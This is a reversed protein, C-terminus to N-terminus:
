DPPPALSQYIHLMFATGFLPLLLNLVPISAVVAIVVGGIFLKPRRQKRLKSADRPTLRRFAVLEYYERGLLIGNLVWYAVGPLFFFFPLFLINFVIILVAFKLGTLISEMISADRPPALEPYYRKEVARCITEVFLSAFLGLFAPLLVITIVFAALGGAFRIGTDVWTGVLPLSGFFTTENVLWIVITWLAVATALSLLASWWFVQRFPKSPLQALTLNFARIMDVSM